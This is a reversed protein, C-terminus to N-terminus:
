KRSEWYDRGYSQTIEEGASIDRLATFRVFRNDDDDVEWEASPEDDHNYMM